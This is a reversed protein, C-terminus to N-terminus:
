RRGSTSGPHARCSGIPRFVRLEAFGGHRSVGLDYGHAIVPSGVPFADDDSERVTGALDIGPILPSIRAVKGKATTALGDKFNVSSREVEILVGDSPLDDVSMPGVARTVEGDTSTATFATFTDAAMVPWTVLDRTGSLYLRIHGRGPWVRRPPGGVRLAAAQRELADPQHPDDVDCRIREGVASSEEGDVIRDLVDRSEDGLTRVDDIDTAFRGARTGLRDVGVVLEAPDKGHDLPDRAQAHRDLMSVRWAATASAAISTPATIIM